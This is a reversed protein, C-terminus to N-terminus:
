RIKFEQHWRAAGESLLVDDRNIREVVIDDVSGGEKILRNNIVVFRDAAAAAWVLAQLEIRPDSRFTKTSEALAAASPRPTEATESPDPLPRDAPVPSQKLPSRTPATVERGSEERPLPRSAIPNSVPAKAQPPKAVPQVPAIAAQPATAPTRRTAPVAKKAPASVPKPSEAVVTPLVKDADAHLTPEPQRALWFVVVVALVVVMLGLLLWWRRKPGRNTARRHQPAPWPTRGGDDTVADQEAKKLAELISSM